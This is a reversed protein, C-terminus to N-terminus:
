DVPARRVCDKDAAELLREAQLLLDLGQNTTAPFDFLHIKQYTRIKHNKHIVWHANFPRKPDSSKQVVSGIAVNISWTSILDKLDKSFSSTAKLEDNELDLIVEDPMESRRGRFFANEPFCVLDAKELTAEKVAADIASLNMRADETSRMQFIALKM